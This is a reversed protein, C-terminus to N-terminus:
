AHKAVHPPPICAATPVPSLTSMEDMATTKLGNVRADGCHQPPSRRTKVSLAPMAHVLRSAGQPTRRTAHLALQMRSLVLQLASTRVKQTAAALPTSLKHMATTTHGYARANRSHQSPARRTQCQKCWARLATLHEAFAMFPLSCGEM